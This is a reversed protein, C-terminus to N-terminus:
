FPSHLKNITKSIHAVSELKTLDTDEFNSAKQEKLNGDHLNVKLKVTNRSM